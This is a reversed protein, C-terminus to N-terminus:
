DRNILQKDLGKEASYKLFILLVITVRHVIIFFYWYFMDTGTGRDFGKIIMSLEFFRKIINDVKKIRMYCCDFGILLFDDDNSLVEKMM